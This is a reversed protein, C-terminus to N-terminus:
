PDFKAKETSSDDNDDNDDGDDDNNNDYDGSRKQAGSCAAGCRGLGNKENMHADPSDFFFFNFANKKTAAPSATLPDTREDTRGDTRGNTPQDTPRDTHHYLCSSLLIHGDTPRDTPRDTQGWKKM